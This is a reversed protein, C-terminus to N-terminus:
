NKWGGVEFEAGKKILEFYKKENFRYLRSPRGSGSSKQTKDLAQLIGLSKIKKQFNGRDLAGGLLTEYLRQLEIFTFTPELLHFGIPEYTLKARLRTLALDLIEQHDFALKPLKKIEFWAAKEADTDAKLGSLKHRILGFYAVSVVRHRPDRDPEGFTYLQELYELELGTEEQLERRAATELSEEALVFGGPIAWAKQFPDYKRRILLISLGEGDKYGFVVADVALRIQKTSDKSKAM